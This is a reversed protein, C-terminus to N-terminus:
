YEDNGQYEDLAAEIKDYTSDDFYQFIDGYGYPAEVNRDKSRIELTDDIYRIVDDMNIESIDVRHVKAIKDFLKNLDEIELMTVVYAVM